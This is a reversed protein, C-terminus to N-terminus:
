TAPSDISAKPSQEVRKLATKPFHDTKTYHIMGSVSKVLRVFQYRMTQNDIASLAKCIRINLPDSILTQVERGAKSVVSDGQFYAMGEGLATAIEALRTASVRNVGKEYKQVQQFSVRLRAALEQQSMDAQLRRSRIKLGLVKDTLTAARQTMKKVKAM